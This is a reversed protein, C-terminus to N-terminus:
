LDKGEVVIDLLAQKLERTLLNTTDMIYDAREKLGELMEREKIIGDVIRGGEVLPHKRRTEKFRKVLVEDSSELFVTKADLGHEKLDNLVGYVEEFHGGGRIDIGVAM